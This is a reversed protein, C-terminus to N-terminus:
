MGLAKWNALNTFVSGDIRTASNGSSHGNTHIGVAYRNGDQFIWVPSGSQGGMTDIQYTIVKAAVNSPRQAMYWQQNGGKDGPYGSLNLASARLFDDNRTAYGFYGTADGLRSNAPLIIAGYDFERNRSNTWGTVSRLVSSTASGYPRSADNLAPIVEISRAWGGNNHMYVCHGATIVTRPSIMWGTGIYRSGDQATIRLACIARWPYNTPTIRVRDDTGIIVETMDKRPSKAGMLALEDATYSGFIAERPAATSEPALASEAGITEFEGNQLKNSSQNSTEESWDIKSVNIEFATDNAGKKTTGNAGNSGNDKGQSSQNDTKLLEKTM